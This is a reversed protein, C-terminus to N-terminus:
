GLIWLVLLLASFLNVGDKVLLAGNFPSSYTSSRTTENGVKTSQSSGPFSVLGVFLIHIATSTLLSCHTNNTNSPFIQLRERVQLVTDLLAQSQKGRHRTHTAHQGLWSLNIAVFQGLVSGDDAKWIGDVVVRINPLIRFNTM